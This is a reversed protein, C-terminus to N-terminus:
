TRGCPALVLQPRLIQKMMQSPSVGSLARYATGGAEHVFSAAADADVAAHVAAADVAAADVAAADVAAAAAVAAAVAADVVVACQVMKQPNKQVTLDEHKGAELAEV